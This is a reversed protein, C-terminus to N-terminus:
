EQTSGEPYEKAQTYAVYDGYFCQRLEEPAFKLQEKLPLVYSDKQPGYCVDKTGKKDTDVIYMKEVKDKVLIHRFNIDDCDYTIKVKEGPALFIIQSGFVPVAPPFLNRYRPLPGYRGSGELMGVPMIDVAEGTENVVYFSELFALQMPNFVNILRLLNLGYGPLVALIILVLCVAVGAWLVTRKLNEKKTTM